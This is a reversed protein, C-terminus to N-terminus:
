PAERRGASEGDSEVRPAAADADLEREGNPASDSEGGPAAADPYPEREGNTAGDSEGQPAAADADPEREDSPASDAGSRAVADDPSPLPERPVIKPPPADLDISAADAVSRLTHQAERWFKGAARAADVLRGPGLLVLALLLIWLLELNGVGLINM